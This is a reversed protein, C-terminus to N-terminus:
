QNRQTQPMVKLAAEAQALQKKLKEIRRVITARPHQCWNFGTSAPISLAREISWGHDIRWYVTCSKVSSDKAWQAVTKTTGNIAVLRNGRRNNAQETATAWKCNEPTYGLSNNKREISYNPGPKKGMDKLFNEFKEWRECFTIGRGAYRTFNQHPKARNCRARMHRWANYEPTGRLGHTKM